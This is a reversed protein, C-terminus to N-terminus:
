TTQTLMRWQSKEKSRELLNLVAMLNERTINVKEMVHASGHEAKAFLNMGSPRRQATDQFDFPSITSITVLWTLQIVVTTTPKSLKESLSDKDMGQKIM